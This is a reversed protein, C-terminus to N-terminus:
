RLEVTITTGINQTSDIQMEYHYFEVVQNVIDLGIGFGGESSNARQFRAKIIHLKEKAIGIGSDQIILTKNQLKININGNTKNYKIANSILNDIMRTADNKDIDIYRNPEIDTTIDINKLTAMAQFYEVRQSLLASIDISQIDRHYNHNLNLYSLDEYIRSLTKSAIEIRKLEDKNAYNSDFTEILEINTLITSIPTNLEHTADQIFSNLREISDRMPKIFLKGLFYGLVGFVFVALLMFAEVRSKLSEIPTIDVKSKLMLYAAGLYYPEIKEINTIYESGFKNTLPKHDKITGFIYNKNKDYIASQYDKSAPYYLVPANSQHLLRLKSIFHKSEIKLRNQQNSIINHRSSTYFIWSALAFLLLTSSM